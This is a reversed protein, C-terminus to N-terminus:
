GKERSLVATDVKVWATGIKGVLVEVAGGGGVTVTGGGVGTGGTEFGSGDGEVLV